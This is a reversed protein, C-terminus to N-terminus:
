GHSVEDAFDGRRKPDGGMVGGSQIWTRIDVAKWRTCRSGLRIPAPFEGVALKRYITASSLGTAQCVTRIRLLADALQLAHLPQPNRNKGCKPLPITPESRTM